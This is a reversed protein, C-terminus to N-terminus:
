IVRKILLHTKENKEYGVTGGKKQDVRKAQDQDNHEEAKTDRIAPGLERKNAYSDPAPYPARKM